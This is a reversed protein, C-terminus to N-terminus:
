GRHINYIYKNDFITSDIVMEWEFCLNITWEKNDNREPVSHNGLVGVAIKGLDPM